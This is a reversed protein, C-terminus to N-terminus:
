VSRTIIAARGMDTGQTTFMEIYDFVDSRATERTSYTRRKIRERKLLQLYSKAVVNDQCNGRRSMCTGITDVGGIIVPRDAISLSGPSDGSYRKLTAEGLEIAQVRFYRSLSDPAEQTM